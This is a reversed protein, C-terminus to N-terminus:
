PDFGPNLAACGKGHWTACVGLRPIALPRDSPPCLCNTFKKQTGEEAFQGAHRSPV